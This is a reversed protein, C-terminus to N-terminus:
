DEEVRFWSNIQKDTIYKTIVDGDEIITDESVSKKLIYVTNGMGSGGSTAFPIIRKGNFDYSELFTYIINPAIGWWIPFGLYIIEYKEISDLKNLIGPRIKLDNMELSTRSNEDNWDLDDSSYPESPIIQYLDAGLVNALKQAATKTNGSASFYAVLKNM